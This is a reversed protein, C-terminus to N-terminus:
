CGHWAERMLKKLIFVEQNVVSDTEFRDLGIIVDEDSPFAM